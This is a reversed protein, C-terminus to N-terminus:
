FRSYPALFGAAARCPGKREAGGWRSASKQAASPKAAAGEKAERALREKERIEDWFDLTMWYFHLGVDAVMRFEEENTVFPFRRALRITGFQGIGTLGRVIAEYDRSARPDLRLVRCADEFHAVEAFARAIYQACYQCAM